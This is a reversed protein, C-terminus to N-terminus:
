LCLSLAAQISCRLEPTVLLGDLDDFREIWKFESHEDPNLIICDADAMVRYHCEKVNRYSFRFYEGCIRTVSLGTEERVERIM